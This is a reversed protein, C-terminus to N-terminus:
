ISLSKKMMNNYQQTMVISLSTCETKNFGQIKEFVESPSPLSHSIKRNYYNSLLNYQSLIQYIKSSKVDLKLFKRFGYTDFSYVPVANHLSVLVPHMLEGIYGDSNKISDYWELPSIPFTLNYKLPSNFVQITTKPLGIVTIGCEEFLAELELIWKDDQITDYASFLVYKGDIGLRKRVYYLCDPKVNQEFAFVPDPTIEPIINGATVFKIMNRTWVDRVSIHSFRMLAKRYGARENPFWIKKYPMNQASASIAILKVPRPLYDVFDGWFPNPFRSDSKPNIHVIGRRSLRYRALLPLNTFVADSGILVKEIGEKEIERAIDEGTRCVKTINVFYEKAFQQHATNQCALVSNAYKEEVDKPIWNIIVPEYGNNELYRYTSLAQLNAGFNSVWHYTLVGIKM